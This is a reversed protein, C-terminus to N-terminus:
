SSLEAIFASTKEPSSFIEWQRKPDDFNDAFADAVAKNKSAAALYELAHPPPPMLFANTWETVPRLIDWQQAEVDMCFAEDFAGGREAHAVLAEGLAWAARSAANAGQGLVPDNTVHADGLALAFRGGGLPAVGRRATPVIAGQLMDLPKLLGFVEPDVREYVAPANERLLELMARNFARPDDEYRLRTAIELAGGPIAEILLGNVLGGATLFQNEFIEGHGPVVQFTMGHKDPFRIGRFLGAFLRRQPETFPSREPVRPFMGALSGRGSAVIVVDHARGLETVGAADLPIGTVVRGGRAAFDELLAPLYVRMDIFLGPRRLDARFSLEPAGKVCVNFYFIGVDPADWHNVGLERDRARATPMFAATNPLRMGRMAEPTSETYLTPALGRKQLYLGLQLGAVGAGIIGINVVFVDGRTRARVVPCPTERQRIVAAAWRADAARLSYPLSAWADKRYMRAGERGRERESERGSTAAIARPHPAEGGEEAFGAADDPFPAAALPAAV